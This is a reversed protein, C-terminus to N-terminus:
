RIANLYHGKITTSPDKRGDDVLFSITLTPCGRVFSEPDACSLLVYEAAFIQYFADSLMKLVFMITLLAGNM